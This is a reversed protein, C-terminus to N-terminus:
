EEDKRKWYHAEIGGVVMNLAVVMVTLATALKYYEVAVTMGIGAAFLISAATTLFYVHHSRSSKIVTGAGIFSIGVIVAEVVRAPDANVLQSGLSESFAQIVAQSVAIVLTAAAAVFMHTRIGAPKKAIEREIGILGGLAVAVLVKLLIELEIESM